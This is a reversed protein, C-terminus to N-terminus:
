NCGGGENGSGGGRGDVGEELDIAGGGKVAVPRRRKWLMLPNGRYYPSARSQRRFQCSVAFVRLIELEKKRQWVVGGELHEPSGENEPM